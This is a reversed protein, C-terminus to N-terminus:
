GLHSYLKCIYKNEDRGILDSIDLTDWVTKYYNTNDYIYKM